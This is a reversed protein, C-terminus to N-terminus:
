EINTTIERSFTYNHIDDSRIGNEIYVCYQAFTIGVKILTPMSGDKFKCLYYRNRETYLFGNFNNIKQLSEEKIEQRKEIGM